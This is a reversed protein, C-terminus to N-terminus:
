RFSYDLQLVEPESLLHRLENDELLEVLYDEYEKSVAESYLARSHLYDLVNAQISKNL